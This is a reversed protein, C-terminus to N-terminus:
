EKNLEVIATTAVAKALSIMNRIQGDDPYHDSEHVMNVFLLIALDKADQKQDDTM